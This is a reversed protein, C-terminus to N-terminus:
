NISDGRLRRFRKRAEVAYLSNSYDTIISEYLERAKDPNNFVEENLEALSFIADDAVIDDAYFLIIRDLERSAREFEGRKKYIKFKSYYIEDTLTHAPYETLISDLKQLAVDFQNQYVSLDAQAFLEMPTYITDLALNDTILLSLDLADNAILKSTSAKLVDLQSQAWDFDGTFYSVRANRFKGEHGLADEKFDLEVQSFLLSADWVSGEYVLIDGLELKAFAAVNEYVGPIELARNLLDIAEQPKNAYFAKVHALEKMMIVTSSNEGLEALAKEYALELNTIDEATYAYNTTVQLSLTKLLELRSSIYYSNSSGKSIVYEYAAKATNYDENKKALQGLNFVRFGDEKLRNDLAKAQILAGSFNKQQEFLWILLESFIPEEPEQQIKRLLKGKLMEAKDENEVVNLTRNFSNQVSQIYNPSSELLNLFEDVMQEHDGMQGKLNAMEYFYPYGDVAIKKAKTYVREAFEFESLKIFERALKTANSRGPQLEKIADEFQEDAEEYKGITKYLKGLEQYGSAKDRRRKLKKKALKEADDYEELAILTQLYKEYVRNTTNTKYIDQYYLKASGFEGAKFYYEALELETEQASVSALALTLLGLIIFLKKM